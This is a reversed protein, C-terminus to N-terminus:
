IIRGEILLFRRYRWFIALKCETKPPRFGEQSGFLQYVYVILNAIFPLCTKIKDLM